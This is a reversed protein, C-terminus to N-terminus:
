LDLMEEIINFNEIRRIFIGIQATDSQDTGEDLALKDKLTGEINEGLDDIRRGITQYSLCTEKALNVKDPCYEIFAIVICEKILERDVLPKGKKALKETILYSVKTCTGSKVVHKQLSTQQSRIAETM